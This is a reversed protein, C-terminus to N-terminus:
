KLMEREFRQRQKLQNLQLVNLQQRATVNHELAGFRLSDLRQRAMKDEESEDYLGLLVAQASGGGSTSIGSGGFQANQRAVARRLAALRQRESDAAQAALKDRELATQSELNGFQVQQMQQLQQLALNQQQKLANHDAGSSGRAAGVINEAAGALSVIRGTLTDLANLGTLLTAPTMSGM